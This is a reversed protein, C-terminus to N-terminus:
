IDELNVIERINNVQHAIVLERTIMCLMNKSSIGILEGEYIKNQLTTLRIRMGRKFTQGHFNFTEMSYVSYCKQMVEDAKAGNNVLRKLERLARGMRMATNVLMTICLALVAAAIIDTVSLPINLNNLM